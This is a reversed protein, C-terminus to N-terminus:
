AGESYIRYWSWSSQTWSVWVIIFLIEELAVLSHGNGSYTKLYFEVVEFVEPRPFRLLLQGSNRGRWTVVLYGAM